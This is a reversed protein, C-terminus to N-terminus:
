PRSFIYHTEQVRVEGPRLVCNPFDAHNIADPWIQTELCLGAGRGYRRGELGPAEIEFAMAAFFVVGPETTAVEMALGGPSEVRAVVRPPEAADSLCFCHDFAVGGEAMRPGIETLRLLDFPTGAVPAIEGTPAVNPRTPLYRPADIRIRHSLIDPAGDLNFYGHHAINVPGPADTRSEYAIRLAGEKLLIHCLVDVNGPFGANGAPDRIALTVRDAAQSEVRWVRKGIGNAGGHLTNGRATENVELEVPRGDLQYRGGAIRGAFRGVSAGHGRSHALYDELREFGLVLPPAHGELRLDRVIAGLTLVEATLGGGALTLAEVPTGDPLTGFPRRTM